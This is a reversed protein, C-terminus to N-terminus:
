APLQCGGGGLWVWRRHGGEGLFFRSRGSRLTHPAPQLYFFPHFKEHPVESFEHPHFNEHLVEHPGMPPPPPPPPPVYVQVQTVSVQLPPPCMRILAEQKGLTHEILRLFYPPPHVGVMMPMCMNSGAYHISGEQWVPVGRAEHSVGERPPHHPHHPPLIAWRVTQM